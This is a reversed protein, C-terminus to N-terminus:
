GKYNIHSVLDQHESFEVKNFFYAKSGPFIVGHLLSLPIDVFRSSIRKMVGKQISRNQEQLLPAMAWHEPDKSRDDRKSTCTATLEAGAAALTFVDTITLDVLNTQEKQAQVALDYHVVLHQKITIINGGCTVELDFSTNVTIWSAGGGHNFYSSDDLRSARFSWKLLQSGEKPESLDFHQTVSKPVGKAGWNFTRDALNWALWETTLTVDLMLPHPTLCNQDVYAALQSKLHEVLRSRNMVCVGDFAADDPEVWDWTFPRAPPLPHKDTACLYNLTALAPHTPFPSVSFETKLNAFPDNGTPTVALIPSGAAQMKTFYEISFDEYLLEKLKPNVGTIEPRFTSAAKNFDFLLQRITFDEPKHSLKKQVEAPLNSFEPTETFAKTDKVTGSKLKVNYTFIWPQGGPGKPQQYTLFVPKRNHIQNLEVLLFNKCLLRYTVPDNATSGLTM